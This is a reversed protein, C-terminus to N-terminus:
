LGVTAPELGAPGMSKYESQMESRCPDVIGFCPAALKAAKLSPAKMNVKRVLRRRVASQASAIADQPGDSVVGDLV